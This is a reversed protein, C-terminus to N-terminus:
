QFFSPIGFQSDSKCDQTLAACKRDPDYRTESGFHADRASVSQTNVFFSRGLGASNRKKGMAGGRRTRYTSTPSIAARADRATGFRPPSDGLRLVRGQARRQSPAGEVSVLTQTESISSWRARHAHQFHDVAGRRLKRYSGCRAMVVDVLRECLCIPPPGIAGVM